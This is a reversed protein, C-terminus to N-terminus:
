ICFGVLLYLVLAALVSACRRYVSALLSTCFLLLWSLLVGGIYLLWCPPVFCSCGLCFCVAQICFDVLLYLVLAALVSACRRYVSALLSTCLLTFHSLFSKTSLSAPWASSAVPCLFRFSNYSMVHFSAPVCRLSSCCTISLVPSTNVFWASWSLRHFLYKLSSSFRSEGSSSGSIGGASVGRRM